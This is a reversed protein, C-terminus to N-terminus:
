NVVTTAMIVNPETTQLLADPARSVEENSLLRCRRNLFLLQYCLCRRHSKHILWGLCANKSNGPSELLVLRITSKNRYFHEHTNGAERGIATEVVNKISIHDHVKDSETRTCENREPKM